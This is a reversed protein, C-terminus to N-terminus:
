LMRGAKLFTAPGRGMFMDSRHGISAGNIHDTALRRIYALVPSICARTGESKHLHYWSGQSKPDTKERVKRRRLLTWHDPIAANREVGYRGVEVLVCADVIMLEDVSFTLISHDLGSCRSMRSPPALDSM